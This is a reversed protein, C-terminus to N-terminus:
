FFSDFKRILYIKMLIVFVSTVYVRVFIFIFFVNSKKIDCWNPSWPFLFGNSETEELLVLDKDATKKPFYTITKGRGKKQSRWSIYGLPEM